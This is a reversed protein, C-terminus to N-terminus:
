QPQRQPRHELALDGCEPGIRRSRKGLDVKAAARTGVDAPLLGRHDLRDFAPAAHRPQARGIDRLDANEATGRQFVVELREVPHGLDQLLDALDVDEDAINVQLDSVLSELTEPLDVLLSQKFKELSESERRWLKFVIKEM